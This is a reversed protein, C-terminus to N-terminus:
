GTTVLYFFIGDPLFSRVVSPFFMRCNKKNKGMKIEGFSCRASPPPRQWVKEKKKKERNLLGRAPNAVTYLLKQKKRTPLRHSVSFTLFLLCCSEMCLSLPFPVLFFLYLLTLHIIFLLTCRLVRRQSRNLSFDPPM